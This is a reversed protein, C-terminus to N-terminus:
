KILGPFKESLQTLAKLYAETKFGPKKLNSIRSIFDKKSLWELKSFEKSLCNKCDPVAGPKLKVLFYYQEQGRFGRSYLSEPWEYRIPNELTGIIEVDSTGIEEELERFM